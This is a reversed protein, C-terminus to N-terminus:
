VRIPLFRLYVLDGLIEVEFIRLHVLPIKVLFLALLLLGESIRFVFVFM